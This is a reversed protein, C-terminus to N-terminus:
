RNNVLWFSFDDLLQYQKSKKDVAKLESLGLQFEKGDSLRKVNAALDDEWYMIWQSELDTSISLLQYRDTYSPQDKKLHEYEKKSGPGLVYFEEWEFDEIGTVECPLDLNEKLYQYYVDRAEDFDIEEPDGVISEIRKEQPDQKM